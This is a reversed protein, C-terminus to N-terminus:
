EDGQVESIRQKAAEREKAQDRERRERWERQKAKQEPTRDDVYPAYERPLEQLASSQSKTQLYEEEWPASWGLWKCAHLAIQDGTPRIGDKGVFAAGDMFSREAHRGMGRIRMKDGMVAHCYLVAFSLHDRTYDSLAYQVRSFDMDNQVLPSFFVYGVDRGTDDLWAGQWWVNVPRFQQVLRVTAIFAALAGPSPDGSDTSIVVNVPEGAAEYERLKSRSMDFCPSDDGSAVLGADAFIGDDSRVWQPRKALRPEAALADAIMTESDSIAQKLQREDGTLAHRKVHDITDRMNPRSGTFRHWRQECEIAATMSPITVAKLESMDSVTETQGGLAQLNHAWVRNVKCQRLRGM